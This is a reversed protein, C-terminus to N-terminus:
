HHQCDANIARPQLAITTPPSATVGLWSPRWRQRLLPPEAHPGSHRRASRAAVCAGGAADGPRRRVRDASRADGAAAYRCPQPLIRHGSHPVIEGELCAGSRSSAGEPWHHEGPELGETPSAWIGEDALYRCLDFPTAPAMRQAHRLPSRTLWCSCALTLFPLNTSITSACCQWTRQRRAARTQRRGRQGM